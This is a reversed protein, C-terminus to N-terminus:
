LRGSSTEVALHNTPDAQRIVGLLISLISYTSPSSSLM